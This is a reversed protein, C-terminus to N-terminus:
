EKRRESKSNWQSERSQFAELLISTVQSSKFMRSAAKPIFMLERSSGPCALYSPTSTQSKTFSTLNIQWATYVLLEVHSLKKYSFYAQGFPLMGTKSCTCKDYSFNDYPEM